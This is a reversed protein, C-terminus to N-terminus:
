AQRLHSQLPIHYGALSTYIRREEKELAVTSNTHSQVPALILVRIGLSTFLLVYDEEIAWAYTDAQLEDVGVNWASACIERISSLTTLALLVRGFECYGPRDWVLLDSLWGDLCQSM